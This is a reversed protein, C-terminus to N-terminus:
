NVPLALLQAYGTQMSSLIRLSAFFTDIIELPFVKPSSFMREFRSGNPIDYDTLVLAHSANQLVSQSVEHTERDLYARSLQVPNPM